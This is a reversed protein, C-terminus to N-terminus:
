DEPPFWGALIWASRVALATPDDDLHLAAVTARGTPTLGSIRLGGEAWSFHESWLQHRPNFLGEARGTRPDIGSVKNSKHSNCIPCALWLNDEDDSGHESLPVIHEIELSAM